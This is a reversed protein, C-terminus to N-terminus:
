RLRPPREPDMGPAAPGGIVQAEDRAPEPLDFRLGPAAIAALAQAGAGLFAVDLEGADLGSFVLAESVAKALAPEAGGAAGAIALMHGRRGGEYTVGALVAYAALGALRALKEDLALLLAEPLGAPRHFAVPRAEATDPGHVLTRALWALGEADLLFSSPAVGLNLGLGLGAGALERAVIRGPLAAYPVPGDAFAALREERDFALAVDGEELRFVAPRIVAGDSEEALLLYLETDALREYFRLRPADAEPAAAMAAHAADLPTTPDTV